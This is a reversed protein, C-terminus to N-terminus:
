KLIVICIQELIKLFIVEIFLIFIEAKNIERRINIVVKKNEVYAREVKKASTTYLYVKRIKNPILIVM